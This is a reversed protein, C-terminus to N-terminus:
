GYVLPPVVLGRAHGLRAGEVQRDDFLTRRRNCRALVTRGLAVGLRAAGCRSRGWLMRAMSCAWCPAEIRAHAGCARARLQLLRTSAAEDRISSRDARHQRAGRPAAAHRDLVLKAGDGSMPDVGPGAFGVRVAPAVGSAVDDGSAPDVGDRVHVNWSESRSFRGFAPSAQLRELRLRLARNIAFTGRWLTPTKRRGTAHPPECGCRVRWTRPATEPDIRPGPGAPPSASKMRAFPRVKPAAIELAYQDLAAGIRM